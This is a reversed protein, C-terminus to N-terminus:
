PTVGTYVGTRVAALIECVSKGQGNQDAVLRGDPPDYNLAVAKDCYYRSQVRDNRNFYCVALAYYAVGLNEDMELAKRYMTIAQDWNARGKRFNIDGLAVYVLPLNPDVELADNLLQEALTLNEELYGADYSFYLRSLDYLANVNWPNLEIAKQYMNRAEALRDLNNYLYGLAAYSDANEPDIELAVMFENEALEYEMMGMYAIGNSYHREASDRVYNGSDTNSSCSNLLLLIFISSVGILLVPFSLIKRM